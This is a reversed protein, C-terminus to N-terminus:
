PEIIPFFMKFTTLANWLNSVLDLSGEVRLAGNELSDAFSIEAVVLRNLDSRNCRVHASVDVTRRVGPERSHLTGNSLELEVVDGTDDLSWV